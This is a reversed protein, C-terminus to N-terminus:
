RNVCERLARRLAKRVSHGTREDQSLVLLSTKLSEADVSHGGLLRRIIGLLLHQCENLGRLVDPAEVDNTGPIYTERARITLEFAMATLTMALVSTSQSVMREVLSEYEDDSM